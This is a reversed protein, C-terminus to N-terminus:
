LKELQFGEDRNCEWRVRLHVFLIDWADGVFNRMSPALAGGEMVLGAMRNQWLVQAITNYSTLPVIPTTILYFSQRWILEFRYHQKCPELVAESGAYHFENRTSLATLM